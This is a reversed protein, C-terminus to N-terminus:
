ATEGQKQKEEKKLILHAEYVVVSRMRQGQQAAEEVSDVIDEGAEEVNRQNGRRGDDPLDEMHTSEGVIYIGPYGTLRHAIYAARPIKQGRALIFVEGTATLLRMGTQDYVWFPKEGIYMNNPRESM